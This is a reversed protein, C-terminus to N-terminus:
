PDVTNIIHMANVCVASACFVTHLLVIFPGIDIMMQKMFM